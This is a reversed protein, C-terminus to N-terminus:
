SAPAPEASRAARVFAAIKEASKVGPASEVGSSVDVGSVRIRALAQPVNDPDLGGSLMVPRGPDLARLLDWDFTRGNGGPLVDSPDPKADFLLRDSVAAYDPVVRLDDRARISIAKMVPLAFKARVEAVRAPTEHGHLQLLDPRAAAILSQLADDDADVSLLVTRIRGRAAAALERMPALELHRPSKKFSVFGVFDAGAAIASELADRSNIGCIKIELSM